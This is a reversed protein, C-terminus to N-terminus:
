LETDHLTFFQYAFVNCLYYFTDPQVVDHGYALICIDNFISRDSHIFDLAFTSIVILMSVSM